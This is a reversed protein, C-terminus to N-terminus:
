DHTGEGAYAKRAALSQEVQAGFGLPHTEAMDAAISEVIYRTFNGAAEGGGKTFAEGLGAYTLMETWLMQELRQGIGVQEPTRVGHAPAANGVASASVPQSSSVLPIAM